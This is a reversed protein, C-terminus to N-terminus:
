PDVSSGAPDAGDESHAEAFHEGGHTAFCEDCYPGAGCEKCILSDAKSRATPEGCEVCIQTESETM